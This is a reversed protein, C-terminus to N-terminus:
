AQWSQVLRFLFSDKKPNRPLIMPLFFASDYVILPLENDEILEDAPPDLVVEESFHSFVYANEYLSQNFYQRHVSKAVFRMSNLLYSDATQNQKEARELITAIRNKQEELADSIEEKSFFGYLKPRAYMRSVLDLYANMNV